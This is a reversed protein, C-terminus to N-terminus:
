WLPEQPAHFLCPQGENVPESQKNLDPKVAAVEAARSWGCVTGDKAKHDCPTNSVNRGPHHLCPQYSKSYPRM